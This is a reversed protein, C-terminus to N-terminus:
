FEVSERRFQNRLAESRPPGIEFRVKLRGLFPLGERMEENLKKFFSEMRDHKQEPYPDMWRVVLENGLRSLGANTGTLFEPRVTGIGRKSGDPNVAEQYDKCFMEYVTRALTVLFYHINIRHPDIGPIDDFFYNTVLDKIGNEITWRSRYEELIERSGLGALTTGFCRLAGTAEKRKLVCRLEKGSGGIPITFTEESYTHEEDYFLWTPNKHLFEAVYKAVKKNQKICMTLDAGLGHESEVIYSWISEGTYESDLYVHEVAKSGLVNGLLERIFRKITTTARARGNRFELSIPMGTVVDWAIHPRFGPFCIKRKPSPGKGINKLEVDDGTFDRAHFDFVIRKGEILGQETAVATLYQRLSLLHAEGIEALGNLVSDKSPMAVLGAMVPLSLEHTRCAKSVSSIGALIRGLNVLLLSFWSYGRDPDVDMLSAAKEYIKLRNVYPLFLFVGPQAIAVSQHELSQVFGIFGKDLRLAATAPVVTQPKEDGSEAELLRRIDGVYKSQFDRVKWRNFIKTVCTQDVSIGKTQLIKEYYSPGKQGATDQIKSLIIWGEEKFGVKSNRFPAGSREVLGLVGLSQFDKKHQQLSVRSGPYRRTIGRSGLTRFVELLVQLRDKPELFGQRAISQKQLESVRIVKLNLSWFDVERYQRTGVAWGHSAYLHRMLVVPVQKEFGKLILSMKTAPIWPRAQKLVYVMREVEVPLEELLQVSELGILGAVGHQQFASLSKRYAYESLGYREIAKPLDQQDLLVSRLAEYRIAAPDFFPYTFQTHLNEYVQLMSRLLHPYIIAM